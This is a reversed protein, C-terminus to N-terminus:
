EIVLKTKNLIGDKEIMLLYIGASCDAINLEIQNDGIAAERTSTQLVRGKMDVLKLTYSSENDSAFVVRVAGHAPNPYTNFTATNETNAQDIRNGSCAVTVNHVTGLCGNADKVIVPYNTPALNSFTYASQYNTGNNKSFNYVGTGGSAYVIIQGTNSSCSSNLVATTFTLATPQSVTITNTNSLCGNADKIMATYTAPSLGSFLNGSQYSAGGNDTYTKIGTGGGATLTISGNTNGNCNINTATYTQTLRSPQTLIVISLASTCGTVDTVQMKYRTAVLRNFFNAGSHTTFTNDIMNTVAYNYPANGGSTNMTITGSSDANCLLNTYSSTFSPASVSVTVSTATVGCANTGTITYTIPSTSPLHCSVVASTPSNLGTAPYWTYTNAGSATLTTSGGPCTLLYGSVIIPQATNVEVHVSPSTASCANSNTVVVSYNGTTNVMTSLTTAGNSWLYSNYGADTSLIVSNGTCITIAGNPLNTTTPLAYVTETRIATGTCGSANTVTVTFPGVSSVTTTQTTSGNSWNYSSYSGADLVVSAGSCFATTGNVTPIVLSPQTITMSRSTTCSGNGTITVTYTGISLNSINQTTAGNNWNYIFPSTGGNISLSISGNTGGYCTVNTPTSTITPTACAEGIIFDSFSTITTLQTNLAARIGVTPQNWSSGNWESGIFVNTNAGADIDGSVFSFTANFSTNFTLNTPTLSWYRNVSKLSTILSTSINPHDGNISAALLKGSTSTIGTGNFSISIPTYNSGNGIEFSTSTVGSALIKELNGNVFKSSSVGTISGSAGITVKNSGTTITGNTFALTGNITVTNTLSLGSTNNVSLNSITSPLGSGTVQATSSDYIYNGSTSFIRIGSSQINGSAGSTTIGSADAMELTGGGNLTFAGTGSVHNTGCNITGNIILAGNNNVSGGTFNFTGDIMLTDGADITVAGSSLTLDNLEQNASIRLTGGNILVDNTTNLTTGFPNALKLTGGSITTLDTFGNFGTLTFTGTNVNTLNLTIGSNIIGDFTTNINGEISLISPGNSSLIGAGAGTVGALKQNYGNLDFQGSGPGFIFNTTVGLANNIGLSFIANVSSNFCTVGHYTCASNFQCHGAGGGTVIGPANGLFLTDVIGSIVGSYETHDLNANNTAGISLVFPSINNTNLHIDNPINIVTGPNPIDNPVGTANHNSFRIGTSNIVIPGGGTGGVANQNNINVRSIGNDIIMGGPLINNGDLDLIVAGTVGSNLKVEVPNVSSISATIVGDTKVTGNGLSITPNAGILTITDTGLLNFENSTNEAFNIGSTVLHNSGTTINTVSTGVFVAYNTDAWALNFPGSSSTGWNTNSTTWTGTGSKFLNGPLTRGTATPASTSLYNYTASNTGDWTFPILLYNYYTLGALASSVDNYSNANGAITSSVLTTNSGASPAQGNSSALSPTNPYQARLLVCGIVTAGSGPFTAGSWSLNIQNAAAGTGTLGTAQTTPANSLTYFNSETSLSTGGANTGYGAFFYHTQPSLGNRSHTFSSVSTGGEALPNDTSTVGTSIKYVTGRATLAGGGNSTVTAGLVASNATIASVTPTTLTPPGPLTTANATPASTTLYNYTSANTGDWTFPIILYNYQQIAGLSTNNFSTTAGSIITTTLTTGSPLTLVGPAKANVVGSSTPNTADQRRLVIYGTSSAGSGPFSAVTWGLNIQSGSVATATFSGPQASPPNSLTYFSSDSTTLGTGNGNIAYGRFFYQTQPSLGTRSQTFASVSTGGEALPNDSATVGASTKYVTGRSTLSSGNNTTVTAGLTASNNTINSLTPCCMTPPDAIATISVDDLGLLPSSGTNLSGQVAYNWAFYFTTNPTIPSAPFFRASAISYTVGPSSGVNGNITCFVNGDNPTSLKFQTTDAKVFTIGDTSYFLQIIFPNGANNNMFKLINYSITFSSIATTGSNNRMQLYWTDNKNNSGTARFGISRNGTNSTNYCNWALQAGSPCATGVNPMVAVAGTAAATWAINVLGEQSLQTPAEGSIKWNTPCSWNTTTGIGDFNQSYNGGAIINAQGFSEKSNMMLLVVMLVTALMFKGVHNMSNRKFLNQGSITIVFADPPNLNNSKNKM